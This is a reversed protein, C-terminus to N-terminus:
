EWRAALFPRRRCRARSERRRPPASAQLPTDGIERLSPIKRRRETRVREDGNIAFMSHWHRRWAFIGSSNSADGAPLM